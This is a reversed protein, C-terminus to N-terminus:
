IDFSHLYKHLTDLASLYPTHSAIEIGDKDTFEKKIREIRENEIDNAVEVVDQATFGNRVLDRATLTNNMTCPPSQKQIINMSERIYKRNYNKKPITVRPRKSSKKTNRHAGTEKLTKVIHKEKQANFQRELHADVGYYALWTVRSSLAIKTKRKNIKQSYKQREVSNREIEKKYKEQKKKKQEEIWEKRNEQWLLWRDYFKGTTKSNSRSLDDEYLHMNPQFTCELQDEIKDLLRYLWKLFSLSCKRPM